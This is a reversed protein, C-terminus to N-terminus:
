HGAANRSDTRRADLDEQARLPGYVQAALEPGLLLDALYRHLEQPTAEPHRQRLGSLALTRVTQNLQGVMHLKRWPPAQRLLEILVAEAEPRTDPFLSATSLRMSSGRSAQCDKEKGPFSSEIFFRRDTM